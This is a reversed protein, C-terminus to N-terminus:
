TEHEWIVPKVDIAPLIINIKSQQNPAWVNVWYQKLKKDLYLRIKYNEFVTLKRDEYKIGSLFSRYVLAKAEYQALRNTYTQYSNVMGNCWALLPVLLVLATVVTYVLVTGKRQSM